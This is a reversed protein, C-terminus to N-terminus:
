THELRELEREIALIEEPTGQVKPGKFWKHASVAWWLGVFMFSLFILPGTFNASNVQDPDWWKWAPFLPSMFLISIFLVWVISIWGVLKSYRGLNWPGQVFDDSTVRLYIPLVYSAYLGIVCIGTLAFFAVSYSDKQVLSLTGTVAAVGVALWM